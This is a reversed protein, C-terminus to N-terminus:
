VPIQLEQLLSQLWLIEAAVHALSRYETEASSHAVLSQKKAWWSILNSGLFVCAGSTSRRDDPDSDWDADCFAVLSLPHQSSPPHFVLGYSLTVNLYRLIRKVIKWHEELPQSLFQCVKNVSFSIEPRTLTAYQLAGVISRYLSPDPVYNSGFKSLKCGSPMPTSIGKAEAMGAKYLLDRIYKSQSLLIRGNSLHKVEIRLFYDLNGLQKLAFKSHLQDILLQILDSNNRTIIIDDVYVLIYTCSGNSRLIFLSPDCKRSIFGLHHFLIELIKWGPIPHLLM